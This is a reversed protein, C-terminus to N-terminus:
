AKKHYSKMLDEYENKATDVTINVKIGEEMEFNFYLENDAM